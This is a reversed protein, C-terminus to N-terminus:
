AEETPLEPAESEDIEEKRIARVRGDGRDQWKSMRYWNGTLKSYGYRVGEFVPHGNDTGVREQEEILPHDDTAPM